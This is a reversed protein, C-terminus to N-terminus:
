AIRLSKGGQLATGPDHAVMKLNRYYQYTPSFPNEVAQTWYAAMMLTIAMDDQYPGIKGTIKGKERRMRCMELMLENMILEVNTKSTVSIERLNNAFATSLTFLKSSWVLQANDMLRSVVNLYAEKIDKTLCIGPEQDVGGEHLAVVSKLNKLVLEEGHTAYDGTNNEFVAVIPVRAYQKMSRIRKVHNLILNDKEYGGRTKQVDLGLMVLRDFAGKEGRPPAWFCSFVTTNSDGDANPDSLIYIRPPVYNNDPNEDGKDDGFVMDPNKKDFALRLHDPDFIVGGTGAVVIGCDEQLTISISGTAKAIRANRSQKERSKYTPIWSHNCSLRESLTPLKACAECVTTMHLVNFFPTGDENTMNILLSVFNDPGRPTTIGIVGANKMNLLARITEDWLGQDVYALEDIIVM